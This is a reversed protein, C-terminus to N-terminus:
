GECSEPPMFCRAANAKLFRIGFNVDAVTEPYRAAPPMRFDISLVAIGHAALHEGIAANNLRDGMTWAGGHVELVVPFPGGGQPRYFRALLPAAGQPRLYELDETHVAM